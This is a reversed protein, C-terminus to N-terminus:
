EGDRVVQRENRQADRRHDDHDGPEEGYQDGAFIRLPKAIEQDTDIAGVYADLAVATVPLM